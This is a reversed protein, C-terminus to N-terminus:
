INKLLRNGPLKEATKRFSDIAENLAEFEMTGTIQINDDGKGNDEFANIVSMISLNEIDKAPQFGNGKKYNVESLIECDVLTSLLMRVMGIGLGLESAIETDSAPSVGEAFRKVCLLVIRLCLIKKLKIGVAYPDIWMKNRSLDDTNEWIFAIEAGLLLITWSVQLWILFLPLAAFSGYIANYHSVGVQFKIYLMQATQYITGAIIGGAFASKINIKKNPIFVYLFTFLLWITGYPLLKLLFAAISQLFHVADSEAMMRNLRTTIFVTTSGSFIVLLPATFLLAIYDTFKRIIPRGEKIWWISNFAEEIRGFMKVVAWVLFILGIVAMIGGKTESLLKGSFEILRRAVDEQGGLKALLEKQLIKEFGFGKAVGFAMAMVPVISLLSYFTLASAQLTCKDDNFNRIAAFIVLGTGKIRKFLLKFFISLDFSKSSVGNRVFTMNLFKSRDTKDPRNKLSNEQKDM